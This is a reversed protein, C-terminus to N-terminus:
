EILGPCVSDYVGPTREISWKGIIKPGDVDYGAPALPRERFNRPHIATASEDSVLVCSSPAALPQPSSSSM